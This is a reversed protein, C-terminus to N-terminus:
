SSVSSLCGFVFDFLFTVWQAFRKNNDFRRGFDFGKLFEESRIKVHGGGDAMNLIQRNLLKANGYLLVEPGDHRVAGFCALAKEPERRQPERVHLRVGEAEAWACVAPQAFRSFWCEDEEVLLWDPHQVAQQKM